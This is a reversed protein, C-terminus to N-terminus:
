RPRSAAADFDRDRLKLESLGRAEFRPRLFAYFFWDKWRHPTVHYMLREFLTWRVNTRDGRRDSALCWFDFGYALS